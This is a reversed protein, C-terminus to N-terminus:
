EWGLLKKELDDYDYNRQEYNNFNDIKGSSNGNQAMTKVKDHKNDKAKINNKEWEEIYDKIATIDTLGKDKWDKLMTRLYSITIKEAREVMISIALAIIEISNSEILTKLAKKEATTIKRDKAEQYLKLIKDAGPITKEKEKNNTLNNNTVKNNTTGSKGAKTKGTKTKGIKSFGTYTSVEYVCYEYAGLRGNKDRMRKREIYGYEILEKIGSNLSDIGDKSHQALEEEYIQWDDPLSLLYSLIGKAKWSLNEDNLIGKNIMVYPNDKNKCVRFTSM